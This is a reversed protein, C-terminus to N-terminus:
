TKPRMAHRDLVGRGKLLREVSYKLSTRIWRAILRPGSMRGEIQFEFKCQEDTFVFDNSQMITLVNEDDTDAEAARLVSKHM